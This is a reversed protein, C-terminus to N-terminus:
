SRWMHTECYSGECIIDTAGVFHNGGAAILLFMLLFMDNAFLFVGSGNLFMDNRLLFMNNFM